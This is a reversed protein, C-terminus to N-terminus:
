LIIKRKYRKAFKYPTITKILGHIEEKYDPYVHVLVEKTFKLPVSKLRSLKDEVYIRDGYRNLNKFSRYSEIMNGIDYLYLNVSFRDEDTFLIFIEEKTKILAEFNRINDIIKDVRIKTAPYTKGIHYKTSQIQIFGEGEIIYSILENHGILSLNGDNVFLAIRYGNDEVCVYKITFYKTIVTKITNMTYKNKNNKIFVKNKLKINNM